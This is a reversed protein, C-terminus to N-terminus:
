TMVFLDLAADLPKSPGTRQAINTYFDVTIGSNLSRSLNYPQKKTVIAGEIYPTYIAGAAEDLIDGCPNIAPEYVSRNTTILQTTSDRNLNVYQYLVM